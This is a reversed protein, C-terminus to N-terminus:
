TDVGVRNALELGLKGISCRLLVYFYVLTTHICSFIRVQGRFYDQTGRTCRTADNIDQQDGGRFTMGTSLGVGFRQERGNRHIFLASLLLLFTREVMLQGHSGSECIQETHNVVARLIAPKLQLSLRLTHVLPNRLAYLRNTM